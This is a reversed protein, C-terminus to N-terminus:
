KKGRQKDIESKPVKVLKSALADFREYETDEEQPASDLVQGQNRQKIDETDKRKREKVLEESDIIDLAKQIPTVMAIGTNLSDTEHDDTDALWDGEKEWHGRILGLLFFLEGTANPVM